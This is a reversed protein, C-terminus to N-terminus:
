DGFTNRLRQEFWEEMEKDKESMIKAGGRPTQTRNQTTQASKQKEAEIYADIEQVTGLGNEHWKKLIGNTYKPAPEHITDVTIEYAKEIIDFDYGLEETWSAFLKKENTTLARGGFGFLSRVREVVNNRKELFDIRAHIEEATFIEEDHFSIAVKEAYSLSKKGLRVCYSLIALIAEPEFGLQETMGVLKSVENKNFIKGMAKQAEDIFESGINKELIAALEDNSYEEVGTFRAVVGGKHASSAIEETSEEGGGVAVKVRSTRSSTVVGAGKWFKLSANVDSKELELQEHLDDTCAVNDDDATLLLAALIRLDNEDANLLATNRERPSIDYNIYIKSSKGM